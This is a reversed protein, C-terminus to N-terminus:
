PVRAFLVASLEAYLRNGGTGQTARLVVKVYPGLNTTNDTQLSPATTSSNLIIQLAPTGPETFEQPDGSSPLTNPLEIAFNGSVIDRNHVRVGLWYYYFPVIPLARRLTITQIASTGLFSFDLVRKSLITIIRGSM